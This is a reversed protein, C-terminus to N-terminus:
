NMASSLADRMIEVPAKQGTWIEFQEQAQYLLMTDGTIIRHGAKSAYDLFCTLLPRYVLDFVVMKKPANLFYSQPLLSENLRPYMGCSTAQILIDPSYNQIHDLSDYSISFDKAVDCARDIHRNLITITKVKDKLASIVSRSAGGAGLIVVDKLHLKEINKFARVVGIWDTNYGFLKGEVNKVTNVAGIHRAKEDVFDLFDMIREKYPLSVSLGSLPKKRIFEFFSSFEQPPIKYIDFRADLSLAKFASNHLIPSLSHAAPYALIGYFRKM